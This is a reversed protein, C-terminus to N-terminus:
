KDCIRMPLRHSPLTQRVPHTIFRLLSSNKSLACAHDPNDAPAYPMLLPQCCRHGDYKPTCCGALPKVCSQMHFHSLTPTDPPECLVKYRRMASRCSMPSLLFRVTPENFSSWLKAHQGFRKFAEVAFNVFLDINEEKTWGGKADFWAPHVFHHISVSPEMKHQEQVDGFRQRINIITFTVIDLSAM